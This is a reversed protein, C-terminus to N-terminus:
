KIKIRRLVADLELQRQTKYFLRIEEWGSSSLQKMSGVFDVQAEAKKEIHVQTTRPGIRFVEIVLIQRYNSPLPEEFPARWVEGPGLKQTKIVGSKKDNYDLPYTGMVNQLADWVRNYSANYLQTKRNTLGTAEPIATQSFAPTFCWSSLYLTILIKFKLPM